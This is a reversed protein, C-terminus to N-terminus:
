VACIIKFYKKVRAKRPNPLTRMGSQTTLISSAENIPHAAQSGIPQPSPVISSFKMKRERLRAFYNGNEIKGNHTFAHMFALVSIAWWEESTHGGREPINM